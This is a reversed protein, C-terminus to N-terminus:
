ERITVKEDELTKDARKRAPRAAQAPKEKIQEQKKDGEQKGINAIAEANRAYWKKVITLEKKGANLERHVLQMGRVLRQAKRTYHETTKELAKGSERLAEGDNEESGELFLTTENQAHEHVEV